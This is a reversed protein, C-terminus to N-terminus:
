HRQNPLANFVSVFVVGATALGIINEYILQLRGTGFSSGQWHHYKLDIIVAIIVVTRIELLRVM